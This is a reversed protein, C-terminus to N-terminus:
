FNLCFIVWKAIDETDCRVKPRRLQPESDEDQSLMPRSEVLEALEVYHNIRGADTETVHRCNQLERILLDNIPNIKVVGILKIKVGFPSQGCHRVTRKLQHHLSPRSREVRNSAPGRQGFASARIGHFQFKNNTKIKIEAVNVFKILVLNQSNFLLNLILFRSGLILCM